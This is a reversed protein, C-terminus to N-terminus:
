YTLARSGRQKRNGDARGGPNHTANLDDLVVYVVGVTISGSVLFGVGAGVLVKFSVLSLIGLNASLGFIALSFALAQVITEGRLLM